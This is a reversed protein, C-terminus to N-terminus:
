YYEVTVDGSDMLFDASVFHKVFTLALTPANQADQTAEGMRWAVIGGIAGAVALIAFAVLPRYRIYAIATVSCCCATGVILAVLIVAFYGLQKLIPLTSMITTFISFFMVWGAVLLVWCILRLVKTVTKEDEKAMQIMEGLDHRGRRVMWIVGLNDNIKGCCKEDIVTAKSVGFKHAGIGMEPDSEALVQEVVFSADFGAPVYEYKIMVDGNIPQEGQAVTTLNGSADKRLAPCGDVSDPVLDSPVANWEAQFVSAETMVIEKSLGFGGVHAASSVAIGHPGSSFDVVQFMAAMQPPMNAPMGAPKATESAGSAALLDDWIGQSNTEEPLHPLQEPQPGMPTWDERVTYTTTTTQGGGVTDSKTEQKADEFRQYILCTRKVVLANAVPASVNLPAPSLELTADDVTVNGVFHVLQGTHEDSPLDSNEVVVAKNKVFDIRRLETVHRGENKWM